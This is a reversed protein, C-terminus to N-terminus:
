MSPKRLMTKYSALITMTSEKYLVILPNELRGPFSGQGDAEPGKGTVHAMATTKGPPVPGCCALQEQNQEPKSRQFCRGNKSVRELGARENGRM